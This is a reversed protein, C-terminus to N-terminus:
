WSLAPYAEHVAEESVAEIGDLGGKKWFCDLWYDLNILAWVDWRLEHKGRVYRSVVKGAERLDVYRDLIGSRNALLAQPNARCAALLQDDTSATWDGKGRRDLLSEPLRGAMAQRLLWKRQGHRTRMSSPISLVFEVLRSDLFPYLCSRGAHCAHKEEQELHFLFYPSFVSAYTFRQAFSPLAAPARAQRIRKLLARRYRQNVWRPPYGGRLQKVVAKANNPAISELVLRVFGGFSGGYWQAFQRTQRIFVAPGQKLLADALCGFEDLLHDAGHGNLTTRCGREQLLADFSRTNHATASFPSELASVAIELQDLPNSSQQQFEWHPIGAAAAAQRAYFREDSGADDSFVTFAELQPAHLRATLTVASSDLGGSLMVGIPFASRTRCAVAEDFLKRFHEVYSEQEAYRTQRICDISWYRSQVTSENVACVLAHAPPLRRIGRFLTRQNDEERCEALHLAVWMEDDPEPQKELVALLPKIESAILLRTDDECYYFPKMGLRDRAAFLTRAQANWIAFAFDGLLHGACDSGWLRFAQLVLEPDTPEPASINKERLAAILEMRNDLRGDWLISFTNSDDTIPYREHLSEPTTHTLCQGFAAPGQSWCASGDRSRHAMTRVMRHIAGLSAPQGNKQLIFAIGSM